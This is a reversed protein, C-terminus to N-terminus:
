QLGKLDSVTQPFEHLRDDLQMYVRWVQIYLAYSLEGVFFSINCIVTYFCLPKFEELNLAIGM